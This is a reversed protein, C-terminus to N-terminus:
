PIYATGNMRFYFKRRELRSFDSAPAGSHVVALEGSRAAQMAYRRAWHKCAGKRSLTETDAGEEVVIMVAERMKHEENEIGGKM